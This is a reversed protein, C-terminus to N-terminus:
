RAGNAVAFSIVYCLILIQRLEYMFLDEERGKSVQHVYREHKIHELESLKSILQVCDTFIRSISMVNVNGRM